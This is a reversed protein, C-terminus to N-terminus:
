LEEDDEDYSWEDQGPRLAPEDRYLRQTKVYFKRAKLEDEKGAFKWGGLDEWKKKESLKMKPYKANWQRREGYRRVWAECFEKEKGEQVYILVAASEQDASGDRFVQLRDVVTVNSDNFNLWRDNEFDHMYSWFHGQHAKGRHMLVSYLRYPHENMDAYLDRKEELHRQRSQACVPVIQSHKEYIRALAQQHRAPADQKGLYQHVLGLSAFRGPHGNMPQTWQTTYNEAQALFRDIEAGRAKRRSAEEFNKTLYRDLYLTDHFEMHDQVKYGRGTAEDYRVLSLQLMLVAPPELITDEKLDVIGGDPKTTGYLTDLAQYINRVESARVILHHFPEDYTRTEQNKDVYKYVTRNTGFFIRELLNKEEEIRKQCLTLDLMDMLLEICENPDQHVGLFEGPARKLAIECLERQPKVNSDDSWILAGFLDRLLGTFKHAREELKPDITPKASTDNVKQSALLNKQEPTRLPEGAIEPQKSDEAVHKSSSHNLRSDRVVGPAFDEEQEEHDGVQAEKTQLGALQGDEGWVSTADEARPERIVGQMPKSSGAANEVGLPTAVGGENREAATAAQSMLVDEENVVLAVNVRQSGTGKRDKPARDVTGTANVSISPVAMRSDGNGRTPSSDGSAMEIDGDSQGNASDMHSANQLATGTGETPTGPELKVAVVIPAAFEALNTSRSIESDLLALKAQHADDFSNRGGNARRLDTSNSLDGEFSASGDNAAAAEAHASAGVLSDLAAAHLGNSSPSFLHDRQSGFTFVSLSSEGHQGVVAHETSPNSSLPFYAPADGHVSTSKSSWPQAHELVAPAPGSNAGPQLAGDDGDVDMPSNRPGPHTPSRRIDSPSITEERIRADGYAVQLASLGSDNTPSTSFNPREEVNRGPSVLGPGLNENRTREDIPQYRLVAERLPKISFYFISNLYCTNAINYLGLPMNEVSDIMQGDEFVDVPHSDAVNRLLKSGRHLALLDVADRMEEEDKKDITEDNQWKDLYDWIIGGDGVTNPKIGLAHYAEGLDDRTYYGLHRGKEKEKIAFTRLEKYRNKALDSLYTLYDCTRRPTKKTLSLYASKVEGPSADELLGFQGNNSKENFHSILENQFEDPTM